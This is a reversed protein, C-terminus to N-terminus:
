PHDAAAADARRLLRLVPIAEEPGTLTEGEGRAAALFTKLEAELPEEAPWTVPEGESKVFRPGAGTLDVYDRYMVLKRDRDPATDEFVLAGKTGLVTLKHEKYPSIWSVNVQATLGGPFRLQVFYQDPISPNVVRV